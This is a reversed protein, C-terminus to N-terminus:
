GQVAQYDMEYPTVFHSQTVTHCVSPSCSNSSNSNAVLFVQIYYDILKVPSFREQVERRTEQHVALASEGALGEAATFLFGDVEEFTIGHCLLIRSREMLPFSGGEGCDLGLIM